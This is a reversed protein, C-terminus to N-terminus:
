CSLFFFDLQSLKNHTSSLCFSHFFVRVKSCSNIFFPMMGHFYVYCILCLLHYRGELFFSTYIIWIGHSSYDLFIIVESIHSYWNIKFISYIVYAILWSRSVLNWLFFANNLFYFYGFYLVVLFAPRSRFVFSKTTLM